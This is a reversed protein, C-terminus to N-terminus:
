LWNVPIACLVTVVMFSSFSYAYIGISSTLPTPPRVNNGFWKQTSHILLPLGVGVGYIIGAAIPIVTFNYEFDKKGVQIYRSLNGAIFLSAILTTLIWFPGYLDPKAQYISHFKPNFPILSHGLRVM